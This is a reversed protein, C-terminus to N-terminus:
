WSEVAVDGNNGRSSAAYNQSCKDGEGIVVETNREWCDLGVM